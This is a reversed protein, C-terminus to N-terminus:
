TVKWDEAFLDENSLAYPVLTNDKNLIALFKGTVRKNSMRPIKTVEMAAEEEVTLDPPAAHDLPTVMRVKLLEVYRAYRDRASALAERKKQIWELAEPGSNFTPSIRKTGTFVIYDDGDGIIDRNNLPQVAVIYNGHWADRKAKQGKTLLADLAKTINM